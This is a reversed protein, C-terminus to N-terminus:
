FSINGHLKCMTINHKAKSYYMMNNYHKNLEHDELNEKRTFVSGCIECIFPGTEHRRKVHQKLKARTPFNASCILCTYRVM